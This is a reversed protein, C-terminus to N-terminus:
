DNRFFKDPVYGRKDQKLQSKEQCAEVAEESSPFTGIETVSISPYGIRGHANVAVFKQEKRFVAFYHYKNSSGKRVTLYEKWTPDVIDIGLKGRIANLIEKAGSKKPAYVAMPSEQVKALVAELMKRAESAITSEPMFTLPEGGSQPEWTGDLNQHFTQEHDCGNFHLVVIGPEIVQVVEATDGNATKVRDGRNLELGNM